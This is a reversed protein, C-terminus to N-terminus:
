RDLAKTLMSILDDNSYSYVKDTIIHIAQSPTKDVRYFAIVPVGFAEAWGLEIGLGTSPYSVEALFLAANKIIEKTNEPAYNGDHPFHFDYAQFLVSGKLPEYLEREFDFATSHGVYIKM